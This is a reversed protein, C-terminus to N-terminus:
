QDQVQQTFQDGLIYCEEADIGAILIRDTFYIELNKAFQIAELFIM